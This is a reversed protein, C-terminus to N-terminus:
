AFERSAYFNLGQRPLWTTLCLGAFGKNAPEIGARAEM